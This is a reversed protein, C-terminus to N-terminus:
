ISKEEMGLKRKWIFRDLDFKSYAPCAGSQATIFAGMAVAYDLTVEVPQEGLKMALFAALFSDGSGVTDAVRISYAPYDYRFSATYYTAGNSGKTILVERINFKNFLMDVAEQETNCSADYWGAIMMLEAINVKVLHSRHLLAAILEQSYYPERINVDFVNYATYELMRFLAEQSDSNRSGLSGFIFADARLLLTEYEPQWSIFDWAAPYVIDYSVEHNEKISAVVESTKHLNDEQIYDVPLGISQVFARLEKGSADYGVRSIMYSHLGLKRLHYAVNMPAGGPKKGTPLMDWLIEGFCVTTKTTSRTKM